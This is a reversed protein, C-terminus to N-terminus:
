SKEGRLPGLRLCCSGPISTSSHEGGLLNRLRADFSGGSGRTSDGGIVIMEPSRKTVWRGSESEWLDLGIQTWSSAQRQM